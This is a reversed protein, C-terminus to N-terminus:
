PQVGQWGTITLCRRMDKAIEMMRSQQRTNPVVTANAKGWALVAEGVAGGCTPNAFGCDCAQARLAILEALFPVRDVLAEACAGQEDDLAEFREEDAETAPIAGLRMDDFLHAKTLADVCAEDACACIAARYDAKARVSLTSFGLAITDVDWLCDVARQIAADAGAFAPDLISFPATAATLTAAIDDDLADGCSQDACACARDAWADLQGVLAATTELSVPQPPPPPAQRGGCAAVSLVM